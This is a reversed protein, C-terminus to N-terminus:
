FKEKHGKSWINQGIENRGDIPSYLLKRIERAASRVVSTEAIGIYSFGAAFTTHTSPINENPQGRSFISM